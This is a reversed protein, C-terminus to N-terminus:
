IEQPNKKNKRQKKKAQGRGGGEDYQKDGLKKGVLVGEKQETKEVEPTRTLNSLNRVGLRKKEKEQQDTWEVKGEGRGRGPRKGTKKSWETEGRTKGEQFTKM